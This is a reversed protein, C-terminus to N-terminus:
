QVDEVKLRALLAQRKWRPLELTQLKGFRIEHGLAKKMRADGTFKKLEIQENTSLRALPVKRMKESRCSNRLQRTRQSSLAARSAIAINKATRKEKSVEVSLERCKDSLKEREKVLMCLHKNKQATVKSLVKIDNEKRKIEHEMFHARRGLKMNSSHAGSLAEQLEVLKENLTFNEAQEDALAQHTEELTQELERNERALTERGVNAADIAAQAASLKAKLDEAVSRLNRSATGETM